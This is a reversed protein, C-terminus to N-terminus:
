EYQRSYATSSNGNKGINKEIRLFQYRKVKSNEEFEEYYKRSM